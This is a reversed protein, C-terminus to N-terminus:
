KFNKNADKWRQPIKPIEANLAPVMFPRPRFQAKRKTVHVTGPQHRQYYIRIHAMQGAPIPPLGQKKKKRTWHSDITPDYGRVQRRKRNLWDRYSQEYILVTKSGGKEHATAGDSRGKFLIPGIVVARAKDDWAFRISKKLHGKRSYPPKGAPSPQDSRKKPAKRMSRKANKQIEAGSKRLAEAKVKGVAAMIGKSDWTFKQGGFSKAM